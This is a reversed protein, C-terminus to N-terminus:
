MPSLDSIEGIGRHLISMVDAYTTEFNCTADYSESVFIQNETGDDIPVYFPSVKVFMQKVPELLDVAPALEAEPDHTEVRTSVTAVFWGKAAVRHTYSVLSVYIDSNRNFNKKPLIIQSSLAQKTNAVPHDILCIARVIEGDKKVLKPVYSPDCYLQGCQVFKHGSRVGRIKGEKLVIKDVAM